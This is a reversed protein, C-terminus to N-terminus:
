DRIFIMLNWRYIEMNMIIIPSHLELYYGNKTMINEDFDIGVGNKRLSICEGRNDIDFVQSLTKKISFLNWMLNPVYNVDHLFINQIKGFKNKVNGHMDGVELINFNGGNGFM